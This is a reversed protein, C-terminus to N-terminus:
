TAATSRSARTPISRSGARRLDHRRQRPGQPRPRAEHAAHLPVPRRDVVPAPAQHAPRELAERRRSARARRPGRQRRGRAQRRRRRQHRRPRGRLRGEVHARPGAHHRLRLPAGRPGPQHGRPPRQPLHRQGLVLPQQSAPEPGERRHREADPRRHPRAQHPRRRLRHLRLPPQGRAPRQRVRELGHLRRRVRRLRGQRRAIAAAHVDQSVLGTRGAPRRHGLEHRQGAREDPRARHELRAPPRALAVGLRRLRPGPRQRVGGHPRHHGDPQRARVELRQRLRQQAAARAGAGLGSRAGVGRDGDGSGRQIAHGRRVERRVALTRFDYFSGSLGIVKARTSWVVEHASSRRDNDKRRIVLSSGCM